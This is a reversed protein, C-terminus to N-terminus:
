LKTITNKKLTLYEARFEGWNRLHTGASNLNHEIYKYMLSFWAIVKFM